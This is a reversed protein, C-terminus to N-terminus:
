AARQAVLNNFTNNLGTDYYVCMMIEMCKKVSLLSTDNPISSGSFCM